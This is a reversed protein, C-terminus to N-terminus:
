KDTKKLWRNFYFLGTAVVIGSLLAGMTHLTWPMIENYLFSIAVGAFGSGVANNINDHQHDTM